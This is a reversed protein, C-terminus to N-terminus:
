VWLPPPDTIMIVKNLTPFRHARPFGVVLFTNVGLEM